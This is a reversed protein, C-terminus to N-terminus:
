GYGDLDLVFCATLLGSQKKSSDHLHTLLIERLAQLFGNPFQVSTTFEHSHCRSFSVRCIHAIWFPLDNFPRQRAGFMQAPFDCIRSSFDEVGDEVEVAIPTGLSSRLSSSRHSRKETHACELGNGDVAITHVLDIGLGAYM